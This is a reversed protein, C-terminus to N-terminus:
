GANMVSHVLARWFIFIDTGSSIQLHPLLHPLERLCLSIMWPPVHWNTFPLCIRGRRLTPSIDIRSACDYYLDPRNCQLIINFTFQDGGGCFEIPFNAANTPGLFFTEFTCACYDWIMYRAISIPILRISSLQLGDWKPPPLLYTWRGDYWQLIWFWLSHLLSSSSIADFTWHLNGGLLCCILGTKLSSASLFSPLFGGIGVVDSSYAIGIRM